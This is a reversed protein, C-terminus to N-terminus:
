RILSKPVNEKPQRVMQWDSEEPSTEEEIGCYYKLSNKDLAKFEIYKLRKMRDKYEKVGGKWVTRFVGDNIQVTYTGPGYMLYIYAILHKETSPFSEYGEINQRNELTDKNISPPGDLSNKRM